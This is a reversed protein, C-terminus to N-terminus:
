HTAYKLAQILLKQSPIREWEKVVKGGLETVRGSRPFTPDVAIVAQWLTMWGDSGIIITHADDWTKITPNKVVHELRKRIAPSLRGLM